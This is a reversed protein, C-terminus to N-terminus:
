WELGGMWRRVVYILALILVLSILILSVTIHPPINEGAAFIFPGIIVVFSGGSGAETSHSVMLAMFGMMILSVGMFVLFVRVFIKEDIESM